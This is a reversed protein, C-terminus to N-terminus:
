VEDLAELLNKAQTAEAYAKLPARLNKGFKDLIERTKDSPLTAMVPFSRPAAKKCSRAFGEWVGRDMKWVKRKALKELLELSFEKLSPHRNGMVYRHACSFNPCHHETSSTRFRRPSRPPFTFYDSTNASFCTNCVNVLSKLSVGSHKDDAADASRIDLEHLAVLIDTASARADLNSNQLSAVAREFVSPSAVDVLKPLFEKAKDKEISGFVLAVEMYADPLSSDRDKTSEIALTECANVLAKPLPAPASSKALAQVIHLILPRSELSSSAIVRVIDPSSPGLRRALGAVPGHLGERLEPPLAVYAALVNPLLSPNKATLACLLLSPVVAIKKANDYPDSREKEEGREEKEDQAQDEQDTADEIETMGKIADAENKEIARSEIAENALNCNCRVLTAGM